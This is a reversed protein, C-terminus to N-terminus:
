FHTLRPEVAAWWGTMEMASGEACDNAGAELAAHPRFRSRHGDEATANRSGERFRKSRVGDCPKVLEARSLQSEPSALATRLRGLASPTTSPHGQTAIPRYQRYQAASSM